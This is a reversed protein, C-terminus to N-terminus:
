QSSVVVADPEEAKEEVKEEVDFEYNIENRLLFMGYFNFVLLLVQTIAMLAIAQRSDFFSFLLLIGTAYIYFLYRGRKPSLLEACKMGVCFYAIITSYGLMFLFIPMFYNMHPFYQGLATQILLSEHMPEQWVGTVLILLVSTTCIIFTDLFIDFIVLSAQKEPRQVSSESHIVSAYGVGVDATYCGRRIGQSITLMMTSGVFGGVAAHGSFASEFVQSFVSPLIAINQYLVWSGMGVYLVIFLPIIASSINGVRHVGGSGAFIVLALLVAVVIYQNFGFNTVISNTMINFQYIEVGYVCLLLCVINPAWSTKCVRRLFYMPGGSYHGNPLKERYKIGLYVEAYKLIMGVLATMWIWFLAGPGGMQAATCIAVVNGVGVCGGICAFFARMPHVGSKTERGKTLLNFFIKIVSPFKRFQAFRSKVTLYVGFLIISPFGIYAWLFDEVDTLLTLLTDM